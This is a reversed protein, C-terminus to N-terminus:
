DCIDGEAKLNWETIYESSKINEPYLESILVYSNTRLSNIFVKVLMANELDFYQPKSFEQSISTITESRRKKSQYFFKTPIKNKTLIESIYTFM